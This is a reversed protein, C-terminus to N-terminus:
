LSGWLIPTAHGDDAPDGTDGDHILLYPPDPWPEGCEHDSAWAVTHRDCYWLDHNVRHRVWGRDAGDEMAHHPLWAYHEDCRRGQSALWCVCKERADCESTAGCADCRRGQTPAASM